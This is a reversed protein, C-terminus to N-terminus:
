KQFRRAMKEIVDMPVGHTGREHCLALYDKFRHADQLVDQDLEAFLFERGILTETIDYGHRQAADKYPKMEKNTTNTNDVIIVEVGVRMLDRVRDQNANHNVGLKEPRFVYKDDEIFYSDTSCIAVSQGRDSTMHQAAIERAATSKGSGPLGRMLILKKM